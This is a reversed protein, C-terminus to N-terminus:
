PVGAQAAPAGVAGTATTAPVPPSTAPAGPGTGAGNSGGTASASGSDGGSGGIPWTRDGGAGPTASARNGSGAARPTCVPTPTVGPAAPVAPRVGIPGGNGGKATAKGGNQGGFRGDAGDGGFADAAAGLGGGGPQVDGLKVVTCNDFKVTGGEGGDGGWAFADAAGGSGQNADAWGYAGQWGMGGEVCYDILVRLATGPGVKTMLVDGGHGGPGGRAYAPAGFDSIADATGGAGGWGAEINNGLHLVENACFLVDGGTGGTGGAAAARGMAWRRFIWYPFVIGPAAYGLVAILSSLLPWNNRAQASGGRGGDTGRVRGQCDITGGYFRIWGGNDGPEAQASAPLMSRDDDDGSGAVGWGISASPGVTLRGRLCILSLNPSPEGPNSRPVEIDGQIDLEQSAVITLDGTMKITVSAPLTVTEAVWVGRTRNATLTLQTNPQPQPLRSVDCTPV